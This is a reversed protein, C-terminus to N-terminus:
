LHSLAEKVTSVPILDIKSKKLEASVNMNNKPIICRKFGLRQAENVRVALQSVSRVESSLGVEGLTVMDPPVPKDLLASAVTLCVSLDAAPDMVKVGGAVNLFIDKDQLNLGIRKELVAALLALRNSDFGQTKQRIVGFASRSVLGQIEVLFPRTGELIATVVSGSSEKSRESLFIESPNSVEVLGSAAM